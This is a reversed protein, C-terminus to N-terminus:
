VNNLFAYSLRYLSPSRDPESVPVQLIKRRVVDDLGARPDVWSGIWHIVPSGNGLSYLPQPTFSVVCRWRAGLDLITHSKM